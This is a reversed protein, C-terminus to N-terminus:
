RETRVWKTERAVLMRAYIPLKWVIYIPALLLQRAPLIRRGVAFWAVLTGLMIAALAVIAIALPMFIGSVVYLIMSTLMAAVTLIVLLALPPVLLDAALVLLAPRRQKFASTLLRPLASFASSMFGQEWRTRQSETGKRSAAKSTVTALETWRVKEGRCLLELGLELDEALASSALRSEAFIRWLFAMGTGQLLAPAGLRALGRQRVVNKVSFAFSSIGVLPDTTAARELVYRSQCVAGEHAALSALEEVSEIECDADLVVVVGPPDQALWDRGFALAYGKGRLSSEHREVVEAGAARAIEATDDSCNDAVVLVRDCPRMMPMLRSLTTGIVASENHAPILLAVSPVDGQTEDPLRRSGLLCEALFVSAPVAVLLALVWAVVNLM